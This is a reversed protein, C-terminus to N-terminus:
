RRRRCSASSPGTLSLRVGHVPFPLDRADIEVVVVHSVVQAHREVMRVGLDDADAVLFRVLHLAGDLVERDGGLAHEGIVTRAQLARLGVDNEQARGGRPMGLPHELHGREAHVHQQFLGEGGGQFVGIAHDGGHLLGPFLKGDVPREGPIRGMDGGLPQDVLSRDALHDLDMEVVAVAARQEMRRVLHLDGRLLPLPFFGEGPEVLFLGPSAGQQVVEPVPGREAGPIM